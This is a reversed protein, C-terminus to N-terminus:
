NTVYPRYTFDLTVDVSEAINSFLIRPIKIDHDELRVPFEAHLTLVDAKITVEGLVTVKRAKGHIFLEGIATAKYNGDQPRYGSVKGKFTSKPYKESEMYNENFHQKMLSKKFQFDRIPVSFVIEGTSLDFISTAKENVAEINELPAESFFTVTAGSTIYKQCLVEPASAFMLGLLTLVIIGIRHRGQLIVKVQRRAFNGKM